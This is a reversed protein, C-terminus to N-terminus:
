PFHSGTSSHDTSFVNSGGLPWLKFSIVQLKLHTWCVNLYFILVSVKPVVRMHLYVNGFCIFSQGMFVNTSQNTKLIHVMSWWLIITYSLSTVLASCTLFHHLRKSFLSVSMWSSSQMLQGLVDLHIHVCCFHLFRNPGNLYYRLTYWNWLLWSTSITTWFPQLHLGGSTHYHFQLSKGHHSLHM